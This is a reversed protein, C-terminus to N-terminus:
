SVPEATLMSPIYTALKNLEVPSPTRMNTRLEHCVNKILYIGDLGIEPPTEVHAFANTDAVSFLLTGDFSYQAGTRSGDHLITGLEVYVGNRGAYHTKKDKPSHFTVLDLEQSTRFGVSVDHDNRLIFARDVPAPSKKVIQGLPEITVMRKEGFTMTTTDPNPTPHVIVSHNTEALAM